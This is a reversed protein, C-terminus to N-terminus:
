CKLPSIIFGKLIKIVVKHKNPRAVRKMLFLAADFILVRLEREINVQSRWKTNLAVVTSFGIECNYSTSFPLLIGFVREQLINTM